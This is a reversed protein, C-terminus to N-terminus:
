GVMEIESFFFAIEKAANELSDSGHVSNAEISEAFEHRLTGEDANAPNTAGMVKRYHEIANDSELVQVVVPGSSMFSCLDNFFSREKHVAYFKQAEELSLHLRKQAIIRLGNKEIKENVAGTLNRRTIDPKLISLTREM